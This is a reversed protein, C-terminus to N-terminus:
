NRVFKVLEIYQNNRITISLKILYVGKELNSADLYFQHSGKTQLNNVLARILRGRIDNVEIQVQGESALEYQINVFDSAPNPWIQLNSILDESQSISTILGGGVLRVQSAVRTDDTDYILSLVDKYTTDAIPKFKVIFQQSEGGPIVMPLVTELSFVNNITHFGNIEIEDVDNNFVTIELLVSDGVPVDNGFDLIEEVINFLSTEWDYKLARYSVLGATDVSEMEFVKQGDAQYETAVYWMTNGSWGVMYNENEQYRMSGMFRSFIVSDPDRFDHELIGTKNTQNLSFVLGRSYPRYNM